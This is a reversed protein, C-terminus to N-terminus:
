ITMRVLVYDSVTVVMRNGVNDPLKAFLPYNEALYHCSIWNLESLAPINPKKPIGQFLLILCAAEGLM